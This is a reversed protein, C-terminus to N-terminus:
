SWARATRPDYAAAQKQANGAIGFYSIAIGLFIGHWYSVWYPIYFSLLVAFIALFYPAWNEDRDRLQRTGANWLQYFASLTAFLGLLGGRYLIHVFHNHPSFDVTQKGDESVVSAYGSGYPKGIAYTV